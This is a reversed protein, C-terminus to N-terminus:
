LAEKSFPVFDSLQRTVEQAVEGASMTGVDLRRFGHLRRFWATQRRALAWTRNVLRERLEHDDIEGDLFSLAEPIGITRYAQM